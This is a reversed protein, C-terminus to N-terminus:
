EIHDVVHPDDPEHANRRQPRSHGDSGDKATVNQYDIFVRGGSVIVSDPNSVKQADKWKEGNTAKATTFLQARYGPIAVVPLRTDVSATVRVDPTARANLYAVAALAVAALTLIALTSRIGILRIV